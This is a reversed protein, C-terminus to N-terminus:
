EINNGGILSSFFDQLGINSIEVNENPTIRSDYITATKFKGITNVNIINKDKISKDVDKSLGTVIYAKEQLDTITTNLLISGRNLIIIDEAVKSIEDILHTSVIIIKPHQKSSEELLSYFKNRMIVDFGLVPEDLLIIKNNSALGIITNVMTKMGLSLKKYKKDRDLNFKIIMENAFHIDFNEQFYSALNILDKVKLNIHEREGIFSVLEPMYLKNVITNNVLLEGSSVKTFGSICKLLTTKGAGNEGLLCYIKNENIDLNINKLAQVNSFNKSVNNFKIM